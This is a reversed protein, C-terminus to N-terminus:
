FRIGFGISPTQGRSGPSSPGGPSSSNTTGDQYRENGSGVPQMIVIVVRGNTGPVNGIPTAPATGGNYGLVEAEQPLRGPLQLLLM